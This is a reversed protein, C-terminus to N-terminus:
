LTIAEQTFLQSTDNIKIVSTPLRDSYDIINLAGVDQEIQWFMKLGFKLADCLIIRIPGGHIVLAITRDRHESLMFSLRKKVRKNLDKLGEGNPIKVKIPNNIWDRYLKPYIETIEEYKLGEFLGFNMERFDAVKEIPNNKFIIEATQYARKLDSSYVKDIKIDKVRAALRESQKIGQNNLLPNSFGCYRNQLNYDTQGHRILILRTM